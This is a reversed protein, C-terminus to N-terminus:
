PSPPPADPGSVRGRAGEAPTWLKFLFGQAPSGNTPRRALAPNLHWVGRVCLLPARTARDTNVRWWALAWQWQRRRPQRWRKSRRPRNATLPSSQSCPLPLRVNDVANDDSLFLAQQRTTPFHVPSSIRWICPTKM